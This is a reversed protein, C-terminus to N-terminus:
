KRKSSKYGQKKIDELFLKWKKNKKFYDPVTNSWEVSRNVSISLEEIEKQNRLVLKYLEKITKLSDNITFVSDKEVKFYCEGKDYAVFNCFTTQDPVVQCKASISILIISLLLVKKM